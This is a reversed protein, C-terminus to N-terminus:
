DRTQHATRRLISRGIGPSATLSGYVTRLRDLGEESDYVEKVRLRAAAGLQARYARDAILKDVATILDPLDGIEVILGAPGVVEQVSGGRYAAIPKGCAMAELVSMGFTEYESTSVFIDVAQMFPQVPELHGVWRFRGGAQRARLRPIVQAAYAEEGVVQGGALLGIVNPHRETLHRILALYDDIRKRSRLACASGIVIDNPAIGLEARFTAGRRPIVDFRDTNIGLPIVFQRDEPILGVVADRCDQKQQESTWVVADPRRRVGGFAWQCFDRDPAFHLHCVLPRATLSRLAVAFPYLDHEYCHIIELGHQKMWKRIAVAQSVTRLVHQKDPWCMGSLLAPVGADTLWRNLDGDKRLVVGSQIAHTPGFLLWDQLTRASAGLNPNMTLWAPGFLDTPGSRNASARRESRLLTSPTTAASTM